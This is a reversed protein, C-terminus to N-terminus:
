SAAVMKRWQNLFYHAMMLDLHAGGGNKFVIPRGQDIAPTERALSYHDGLIAARAIVGRQLPLSLEGIDDVVTERHDVFIQARRILADDAERMSPAHAGVLDIFCPSRVDGGAFVPAKSSTATCIIDASRVAASLDNVGETAAGSSACAAALARAKEPKRAFILVRELAPFIAAYGNIATRAIVGA